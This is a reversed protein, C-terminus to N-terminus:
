VDIASQPIPAQCFVTDKTSSLYDLYRLLCGMGASFMGSTGSNVQKYNPAARFIDWDANLEDPTHCTFVSRADFVVPIQLKARTRCPARGHQQRVVNELYLTGNANPQTVLWAIVDEPVLIVAIQHINLSSRGIGGREIPDQPPHLHEFTAWGLISRTPVIKSEDPGKKNRDAAGGAKVWKTPRTKKSKEFVVWRHAPMAHKGIWRYVTNSSAGLYKGIEDVGFRGYFGM